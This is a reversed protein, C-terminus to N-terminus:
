ILAEKGEKIEQIMFVITLVTSETLAMSMLIIVVKWWKGGAALKPYAKKGGSEVVKPDKKWLKGGREAPPYNPTCRKEVVKWWKGGAALKPYAKKGGSEVVKPDKKWLKGGREAPPYNPTCRKEV